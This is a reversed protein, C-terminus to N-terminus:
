ELEFTVPQNIPQYRLNCISVNLIDKGAYRYHGYGEHVHGCVVYQICEHESLLDRQKECGVHILADSHMDKCKDGCGHPPGHTLLIDVDDPVRSWCEEFMKKRPVNFVWRDEHFNPTRPEGWIKLGGIEIASQNLIHVDDEFFGYAREPDEEFMKDHNGSIIVKHEFPQRHLWRSFSKMEGSRGLGTFDGAHLLVDGDPLDEIQNHKNHTDSIAVFKM